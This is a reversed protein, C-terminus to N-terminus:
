QQQKNKGRWTDCSPHPPSLAGHSLVYIVVTTPPPPFQPVEPVGEILLTGKLIGHMEKVSVFTAMMRGGSCMELQFECKWKFWIVFCNEYHARM